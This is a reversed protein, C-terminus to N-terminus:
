QGDTQPRERYEKKARVRVEPDQIQDLLPEIEAVTMGHDHDGGGIAAIGHDRQWGRPLALIKERIAAFDQNAAGSMSTRYLELTRPDEPLTLAWDALEAPHGSQNAFRAFGRNKAAAKLADLNGDELAQRAFAFAVSENSIDMLLGEAAVKSRLKAPLSTWFEHRSGSAFPDNPDPPPDTADAFPDGETAFPDGASSFSDSNALSQAFASLYLEQRVTDITSKLEQELKALPVKEALMSATLRLAKKGEPHDPFTLGKEQHIEKLAAVVREPAQELMLDCWKEGLQATGIGLSKDRFLRLAREPNALIGAECSSLLALGSSFPGSSLLEEPHEAFSARLAAELDAVSWKELLAGQLIKRQDSPLKERRLLEWAISFERPGNASSAIFSAQSPNDPTGSLSTPSEAIGFTGETTTAWNDPWALWCGAALAL